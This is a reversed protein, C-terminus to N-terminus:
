LRLQTIVDQMAMFLPSMPDAGGALEEQTAADTVVGNRTLIYFTVQDQEPEPFATAKDLHPVAEEAAETARRAAKRVPERSGGSVVEHPATSVSISANGDALSIVSVTAHDPYGMEMVVGWVNRGKPLTVHFDAPKGTLLRQRMTARTAQASNAAPAPAAERACGLLTALAIAAATRM